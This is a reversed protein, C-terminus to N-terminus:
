SESIACIREKIHSGSVAEDIMAIAYDAYSIQSNGKSDTIFEEGGLIYSGSRPADALFVSAPCLFTWNVDNRLRIYDLANAQAGSVPKYENPFDPTDLLRITHEKNVYLSGAGGIVLLRNSKHSLLTSLYKMSDVHRHLVEPTFAGFADIIADFDKVDDYTLEFLDKEIVNVDNTKLSDRHRVIATVDLGRQKAESLILSGAKGSAGIVALKM